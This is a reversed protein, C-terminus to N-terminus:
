VLVPNERQGFGGTKQKDFGTKPDDLHLTIHYVDLEFFEFFFCIQVVSFYRVAGANGVAGHLFYEAAFGYVWIRIGYVMDDFGQAEFYFIEILFDLIFFHIGDIEDFDKFDLAFYVFLIDIRQFSIFSDEDDHKRDDNKEEEGHGGQVDAVAAVAEDM